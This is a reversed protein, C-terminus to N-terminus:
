GQAYRTRLPSPIPGGHVGGPLSDLLVELADDIHLVLEHAVDLEAVSLDGAHSVLLRHPFPMEMHAAGVGLRGLDDAVRGAEIGFRLCPPLDHASPLILLKPRDTHRPWM